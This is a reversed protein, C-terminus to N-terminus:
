LTAGMLKYKITIVITPKVVSTGGAPDDINIAGLSNSSRSFYYKPTSANTSEMVFFMNSQNTLDIGYRMIGSSSQIIGVPPYVSTQTNTDNYSYCEVSASKYYVSWSDILMIKNGGPIGLAYPDMEFGQFSSNYKFVGREFLTSDKRTDLTITIYPDDGLILKGTSDDLSISSYKAERNYLRIPDVLVPRTTITSGSPIATTKPYYRIPNTAALGSPFYSTYKAPSLSLSTGSITFESVPVAINSTTFYLTSIKEEKLASAFTTALYTQMNTGCTISKNSSKTAYTINISGGWTDWSTNSSNLDASLKFILTTSNNQVIETITRFYKTDNAWPNWISWATFANSVNLLSVLKNMFATVTASNGNNIIEFRGIGGGYYNPYYRSLMDYYGSALSYTPASGSPGLYYMSPDTTNGWSDTVQVDTVSSVTTIQTITGNPEVANSKYLLQPISITNGSYSLLATKFGNNNLQVIDYANLSSATTLGSTLNVTKQQVQLQTGSARLTSYSQYSTDFSATGSNFLNGEFEIQVTTYYYNNYQYDSVSLITAFSTSVTYGGVANYFYNGSDVLRATSGVLTKLTNIRNTYRNSFDPALGPYDIQIYFKNNMTDRYFRWTGDNSDFASDAALWANSNPTNTVLSLASTTTTITTPTSVHWNYQGRFEVNNTVPTTISGAPGAPGTPGTPGGSPGTPGTPGIAGTAGAVGAVGARGVLGIVLYANNGNQSIAAASAYTVTVTISLATTANIGTPWPVESIATVDCDVYAASNGSDVCRIVAGAYFPTSIQAAALAMGNESANAKSVAFTFSSSITPTFTSFGSNDLKTGSVIPYFTGGGSGGATGDLVFGGYTTSYKLVENNVRGVTSIDNIIYGAINYVPDSQLAMPNPTILTSGNPITSFWPVPSSSNTLTFAGPTQIDLVYEHINQDNGTFVMGDYLWLEAVTSDIPVIYYSLFPQATQVGSEAKLTIFHAKLWAGNGDTDSCTLEGLISISQYYPEYYNSPYITGRIAISGTTSTSTRNITAIRSYYYSVGARPSTSIAIKTTSSIAPLQASPVKGTSDLSAYGDALGKSASNEPTFGLANTVDVTNIESRITYSSKNEVDGLGVDYADLTVVGTKGAVSDVAGSTIYVYASGSWRYTKNTDLAVYIKGTEGTGPFAALNAAEVVDDVYSPLRAADITGSTIKSADLNPIDTASLTTGSTVRGKADTTVKTYTGATGVSALTLATSSGTSGTGTVDGTFTLSGSPISVAVNSVSTIRGKADVAIQPINTANGYTGATAGSNALTATGTVNASGNFSGSTYTVDGTLAITRGTTLTAASGTTNQNLTPIDAAVLTRFTPVGASGNPAVLVTNATQSAFNSPTVALTGGLTLNGSTSVTGSLTLGSVTGTGGVSTVTGTNSTYGSPNTAAYAGIEALTWSVNASGDVTKGTNGLTLTRAVQWVTASGANGTITTQDGTNTGSVSANNAITLTTSANAYTLAGSNTNITLTRTGNNVGTGGFAPNILGGQWTGATITRTGDVFTTGAISIGDKVKFTM